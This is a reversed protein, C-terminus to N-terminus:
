LVCCHKSSSTPPQKKKIGLGKFLCVFGRGGAQGLRMVLMMGMAWVHAEGLGGGGLTKAGLTEGWDLACVIMAEDSRVSAREDGGEGGAGEGM